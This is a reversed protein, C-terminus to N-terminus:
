FEDASVTEGGAVTALAAYTRLNITDRLFKVTGDGYLVNVGGSHLSSPGDFTSRYIPHKDIEQLVFADLCAPRPANPKRAFNVEHSRYIGYYLLGQSADGPTGLPDCARGTPFLNEDRTVLTRGLNGLGAGKLRETVFATFGMGDTLESTPVASGQYFVGNPVRGDNYRPDPDSFPVSGTVGRYSHVGKQVPDSPCLYVSLRVARGSRNVDGACACGAGIPHDFNWGDFMPRQDLYPVIALMETTVESMCAPDEHCRSTEPAPNICQMLLYGPPFCLNADEYDHMAIGIQKLNNVCQTRRASERAAQVAPMILAVLIGIIAMVVLLEILTFARRRARRDLHTM